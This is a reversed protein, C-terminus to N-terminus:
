KDNKLLQVLKSTPQIRIMFLQDDEKYVITYIPKKVGVPFFSGKYHVSFDIKIGKSLEFLEVQSRNLDIVVQEKTGLRKKIIFEQDILVYEYSRIYSIILRYTGVGFVLLVLVDGINKDLKEYRLFISFLTFIICFVILWTIIKIIQIKENKSTEQYM